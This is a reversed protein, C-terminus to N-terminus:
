ILFLGLQQLVNGWRGIVENIGEALRTLLQGRGVLLLHAHALVQHPEGDARVAGVDLLGALHGPHGGDVQVLLGAGEVDVSLHPPRGRM